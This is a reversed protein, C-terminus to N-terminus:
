ARRPSTIRATMSVLRNTEPRREGVPLSASIKSAM